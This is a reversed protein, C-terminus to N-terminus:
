CVRSMFSFFKDDLNSITKDCDHKLQTCRCFSDPIAWGIKSMDMRLDFIRQPSDYAGRGGFLVFLKTKASIAAPVIFGSGGVVISADRILALAGLIGLEGKHLSLHAPPEHELVENTDDCDAISVVYYGAAKLMKATWGVYNPNPARSEAPFETRSTVPRIVALPMDHPLRLYHGPLTSPLDMKERFESIGMVDYKGILGEIVGPVTKGREANYGYNWDIVEDVKPLDVFKTKTTLLHLSQTRLTSTPRIFSVGPIDSLLEPLVTEIYLKHDEALRKIFPRAYLTDGIGQMGKLHISM